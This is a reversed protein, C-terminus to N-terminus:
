KAAAEDAEAKLEDLGDVFESINMSPVRGGPVPKLGAAFAPVDSFNEDKMMVGLGALALFGACVGLGVYLRGRATMAGAVTLHGIILAAVLALLVLSFLLSVGDAAPFLFTTWQSVTVAIMGVLIVGSVVAAHGRFRFQRDSGRTLVSWVGAWLMVVGFGALAAGLTDSVTSRQVSSAWGFYASIATVLTILLASGRPALAWQVAKPMRLATETLAAPVSEADDRVRVTTRGLVIEMGPMLALESELLAGNATTGNLSGLDRIVYVGGDRGEFVAHKADAYPDDLIVDNTLARGISISRGDLRHWSANGRRDRVELILAM